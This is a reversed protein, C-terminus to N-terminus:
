RLVYKKDVFYVKSLGNKGDQELNMSIGMPIAFQALIFGLNEM